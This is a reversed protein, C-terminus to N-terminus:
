VLFFIPSYSEGKIFELAAYLRQREETTRLNRHNHASNICGVRDGDGGVPASDYNRLHESVTSLIHCVDHVNDRITPFVIHQGYLNHFTKSSVINLSRHNFTAPRPLFELGSDLASGSQAPYHEWM